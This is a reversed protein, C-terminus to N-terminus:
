TQFHCFDPLILLWLSMLSSNLYLLPSYNTFLLNGSWFNLQSWIINLDCRYFHYTSIKRNWNLWWKLWKRWTYSIIQLTSCSHKPSLSITNLLSNRFSTENSLSLSSWCVKSLAFLIPASSVLNLQKDNIIVNHFM